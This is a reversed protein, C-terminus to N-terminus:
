GAFFHFCKEISKAKREAGIERYLKEAEQAYDRSPKTLCDKFLRGEIEKKEVMGAIWAKATLQAACWSKKGIACLFDANQLSTLASDLQGRRVDCIAKLSYLISSCHGGCSSEFLTVGTDIHHYVLNWDGMDLATDAAHAHFHSRGWFIGSDSCRGICYDFHEMAKDLNGLWQQMEGIYCRPALLNPTYHRGTLALEEFLDISRWFIKEAGQFDNAILKSMGIFRLALGMHNEKGMKRAMLLIERGVKLLGSSEDTQLCHHGIHELCHIHIEDFNYEAAFHLSKDIFIRGKQYEGWNILYGGHIELYSAEMKKNEIFDVAREDDRGDDMDNRIDKLLGRVQGIKNETDERNSFPISCTLLVKDEVLPFLVHNLTIHFAMERLHQRLVQTKMGAMAYHHCLITSLTPNWVQPSHHESLVEAIRRHIKERRFGPISDYVCERVNAHFFDILFRDKERKERVMKKQLLGNIPEILEQVDKQLVLAIDDISAGPGFVSLISLIERQFSSIDEMRSMILGKLGAFCDADRNEMLMGRMEVLLLPMGESQQIFYDEGKRLVIEKPLYLQCFQIIDDSGFPVLPIQISEHPIGPRVGHLLESVSLVSEPRSTLFVTVPIDIKSLFVELVQLSQLDFLHIDEFVFIPRKNKSLVAVLDALIKGITAPNREMNLLIDVVHSVSEKKMFEYFVGSLISATIPDVAIKRERLKNEIQSVIGNWSSYSYKGEAALPQATFIDAESFLASDTIHSILASKGVGAEGHIFVLLASNTNRSIGDLIKEVEADRCCFFKKPHATSRQLNTSAVIKRLFNRVRKGPFARLESKMKACYVNYQAVAESIRGMKCYIEMLELVSSEDLPEFTLLMSLSDALEGLLGQEYCAAIRIRIQGAAKKRISDRAFLLWEDFEVVGLGDFGKLPEAFLFAPVANEPNAFTTIFDIDREINELIVDRRNGRLNEPLLKRLLYIANRISNAAQSESKDGWFLFKLTERSVRGELALYFLVAEAKRFPISLRRGGKEIFPEGLFHLKVTV